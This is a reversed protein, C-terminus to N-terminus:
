KTNEPETWAGLTRLEREWQKQVNETCHAIADKWTPWRGHEGRFAYQYYLSHANHPEDPSHTPRQGCTQCADPSPPLINFYNIGDTTQGTQLDVTQTKIPLRKM